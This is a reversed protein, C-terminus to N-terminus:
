KLGAQRLIANQTGAPVDRNMKGGHAIVISGSRTSHRYVMHAGEGTRHFYWGNAELLKILDRYTVAAGIITASQDGRGM